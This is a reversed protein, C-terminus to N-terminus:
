TLENRWASLCVCVCVHLPVHCSCVSICAYCCSEWLQVWLTTSIFNLLQPSHSHKARPAEWECVTRRRLLMTTRALLALFNQVYTYVYVYICLWIYMYITYTIFISQELKCLLVRRYLMFSILTCYAFLFRIWIEIKMKYVCGLFVCLFMAFHRWICAVVVGDIAGEETNHASRGGNDEWTLKKKRKYDCISCHRGGIWWFKMSLSVCHQM